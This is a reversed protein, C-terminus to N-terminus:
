IRRKIQDDDKWSWTSYLRQNRDFTQSQFENLKEKMPWILEFELTGGVPNNTKCWCNHKVKGFFFWRAGIYIWLYM